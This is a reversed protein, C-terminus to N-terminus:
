RPTSSTRSSATRQPSARTGTSLSETFALPLTTPLFSATPFLWLNYNAAAEDTTHAEPSWNVAAFVVLPHPTGLDIWLLGHAACFDPVCGDITLYRNHQTTVTGYRSLFLPIIADLPQNAGPEPGM